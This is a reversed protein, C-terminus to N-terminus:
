QVRIDDEHEVLIYTFLTSYCRIAGYDGEPLGSYLM